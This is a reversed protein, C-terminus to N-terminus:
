ADDIVDGFLLKEDLMNVFFSLVGGEYPLLAADGQCM